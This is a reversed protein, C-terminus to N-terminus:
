IAWQSGCFHARNNLTSTASETAAIKAAKAYLYTAHNFDKEQECKIAKLAISKCTEAKAKM